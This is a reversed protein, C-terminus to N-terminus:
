NKAQDNLELRTFIMKRIKKFLKGYTLPISEFQNIEKFILHFLGKLYKKIDKKMNKEKIDNTELFKELINKALVEGYKKINLIVEFSLSNCNEPDEM